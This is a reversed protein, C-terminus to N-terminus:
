VSKDKGAANNKLMWYAVFDFFQGNSPCIELEKGAIEEMFARNNEWCKEIVTRINREVRKYPIGHRQALVPYIDKTIKLCCGYNEEAIQIAEPLLYYGKYRSTINFKRILEIETNM